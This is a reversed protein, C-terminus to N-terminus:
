DLGHELAIRAAATRSQVHLKGYISTLHSGVTRPSLSLREAVEADTLGRAILRLVDVERSTLGLGAAPAPTLADRVAM